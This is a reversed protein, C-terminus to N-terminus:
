VNVDFANLWFINVFIDDGNTGDGAIWRKEGSLM